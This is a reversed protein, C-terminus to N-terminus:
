LRLGECSINYGEANINLYSLTQTIDSLTIQQKNEGDVVVIFTVNMPTVGLDDSNVNINIGTSPDNYITQSSDASVTTPVLAFVMLLSVFVSFVKILKKKYKNKM